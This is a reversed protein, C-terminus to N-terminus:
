TKDCADGWLDNDRDGVRKERLEGGRERGRQIDGQREGDGRRMGEGESEGERPNWRGRQGRDGVGRGSEREMYREGEASEGHVKIHGRESCSKGGWHIDGEGGERGGRVGERMRETNDGGIRGKLLSCYAREVIWDSCWPPHCPRTLMIGVTFWWSVYLCLWINNQYPVM